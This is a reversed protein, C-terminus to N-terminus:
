GTVASSRRLGEMIPLRLHRWPYSPLISTSFCIRFVLIGDSSNFYNAFLRAKCILINYLLVAYLARHLSVSNLGIGAQMSSYALDYSHTKRPTTGSMTDRPLGIPLPKGIASTTVVGSSDSDNAAVPM